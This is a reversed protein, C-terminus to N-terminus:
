GGVRERYRRAAARLEEKPDPPNILADEFADWDEASLTIQEHPEICVRSGGREVSCRQDGHDASVDGGAGANHKTKAAVSLNGLYTILYAALVM